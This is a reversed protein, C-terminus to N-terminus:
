KNKIISLSKRLHNNVNKSVSEENLPTEQEDNVIKLNGSGSNGSSGNSNEDVVISITAEEQKILTPTTTTATSDNNIVSESM